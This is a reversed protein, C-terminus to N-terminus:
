ELYSVATIFANGLRAGIHFRRTSYSLMTARVVDVILPRLVTLFMWFRTQAVLLGIPIALACCVFLALIWTLRLM